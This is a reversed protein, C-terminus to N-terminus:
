PRGFRIRFLEIYGVRRMESNVPFADARSTPDNPDYIEFFRAEIRPDRRAEQQERWTSGLDPLRLRQDGVVVVEEIPGSGRDVPEALRAAGPREGPALRRPPGPTDAGAADIRPPVALDDDQAPAAAALAILFAGIGLRNRVM